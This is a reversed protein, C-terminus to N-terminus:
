TESHGEPSGHSSYSSEHSHPASGEGEEEEQQQNAQGSIQMQLWLASSWIIMAM